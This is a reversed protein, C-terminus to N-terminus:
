LMDEARLRVQDRVWAVARATRGSWRPLLFDILEAAELLGAQRGRREAREIDDGSGESINM